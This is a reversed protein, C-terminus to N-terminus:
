KELEVTLAKVGDILEDLPNEQCYNNIWQILAQSDTNKLETDGAWGAGSIWGLIWSELQWGESSDKDRETTWTGCSTDPYGYIMYDYDAHSATSLLATTLALPLILREM